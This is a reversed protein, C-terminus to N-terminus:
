DLCDPDRSEVRRRVVDVGAAFGIAVDNALHHAAGSAVLAM